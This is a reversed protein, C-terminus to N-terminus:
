VFVMGVYGVADNMEGYQRRLVENSNTQCVTVGKTAGLQRCALLTAGIAGPGCANHNSQAEPLVANSDMVAILEIMRADNTQTAWAIAEPGVGKPTFRYRPGYHTLDTSALVVVKRGLANAVPVTGSGVHMAQEFPPVVIPLIKANPFLHQIFPVVVELSHEQAHASADLRLNSNQQCMASRMEHDIAVQGLPTQWADHEDVISEHTPVTHATGFLVFTEVSEHALAAFVRGAVAGSCIWGAHPVVGGYVRPTYGLTPCATYEDIARQCAASDSDYFRGAVAHPRIRM